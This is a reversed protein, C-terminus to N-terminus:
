AGMDAIKKSAQAVLRQLNDNDNQLKKYAALMEKLTSAVQKDGTYDKTQTVVTRVINGMNTINSDIQLREDDIGRMQQSLVRKAAEDMTKTDAAIIANSRNTIDLLTKNLETAGGVPSDWFLTSQTELMDKVRDVTKQTKNVAESASTMLNVSVTLVDRLKGEAQGIEVVMERFARMDKDYKRSRLKKELDFVEDALRTAGGAERNTFRDIEGIAKQLQELAGELDSRSAGSLPLKNRAEAREKILQSTEDYKELQKISKKIQETMKTMDGIARPMKVLIEKWVAEDEDGETVGLGLKKEYGDLLDLYAECAATTDKDLRGTRKKAKELATRLEEIAKKLTLVEGEDSILEPDKQYIKSFNELGKGVGCGNALIGRRDDWWKRDFAPGGLKIAAIDSKKM